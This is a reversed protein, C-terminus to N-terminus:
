RTLADIRLEFARTSMVAKNEMTQVEQSNMRKKEQLRRRLHFQQCIELLVPTLQKRVLFVFNENLSKMASSVVHGSSDTMIALEEQSLGKVPLNMPVTINKLLETLFLTLNSAETSLVKNKRALIREIMEM